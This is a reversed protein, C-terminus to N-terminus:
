RIGEGTRLERRLYSKEAGTAGRALRAPRSPPGLRTELERVHLDRTIRSFVIPKSRSLRPRFRAVSERSKEERSETSAAQKLRRVAFRNM